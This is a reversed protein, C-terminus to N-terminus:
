LQTKKRSRNNHTIAKMTERSSSDGQRSPQMYLVTHRLFMTEVRPPLLSFL